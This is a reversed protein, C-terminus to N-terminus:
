AEGRSLRPKRRKKDPGIVQTKLRPNVVVFALDVVLNILAITIALIIVGGQVAPYNRATLAESIYRGLGPIGFVTEIIITGGLQNGMQVGVHNIVPILGNRIIHHMTIEHSSLGKAKATRVYDQRIVELMSTRTITATRAGAGLAMVLIPLVYGAPTDVGYSPLLHFQVSFIIILLLALCFNPISSFFMTTVVCTNDVWTNHKLASGVGVPIGILLGGCVSCFVLFLSTPLRDMIENFVPQKTSYSTGLDGHLIGIIYDVFQVPIPDNLGLEERMEERQEETATDSLIYDVPDGPTFTKLIFVVVIVGVLVLIIQLLRKIIYKAM